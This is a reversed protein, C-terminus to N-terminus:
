VNTSAVMKPLCYFVHMFSRGASGDAAGPTVVASITSASSYYAASRTGSAAVLYAGQKGGWYESNVISLVEGVLLDTAKLNIGVFYGDDDATDGLKMTASTGDWLVTSRFQIDTVLAGAPIAVSGTYSTGSGDETFSVGLCFMRSQDSEWVASSAARLDVFAGPPIQIPTNASQDNLIDATNPYLDMSRVGANKVSQVLGQEAPLLKASDGDTAVTIVQNSQGSMLTANAQGGGAFAVLATDQDLVQPRDTTLRGITGLNRGSDVVLAKSATVTGATVGDLVALESTSPLTAKEPSLAPAAGQTQVVVASNSTEPLESLDYDSSAM